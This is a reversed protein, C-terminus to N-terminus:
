FTVIEDTDNAPKKKGLIDTNRNECNNAILVDGQPDEFVEVEGDKMAFEFAHFIVHGVESSFHSLPQM